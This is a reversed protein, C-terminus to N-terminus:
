RNVEVVTVIDSNATLEGIAIDLADAEDEAEVVVSVLYKNM